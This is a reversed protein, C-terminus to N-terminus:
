HPIGEDEKSLSNSSFTIHRMFFVQLSVVVCGIVKHKRGWRKQDTIFLQENDLIAVGKEAKEM